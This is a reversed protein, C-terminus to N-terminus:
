KQAMGSYYPNVLSSAPFGSYHILKAEAEGTTHSIHQYKKKVRASQVGRPSFLVKEWKDQSLPTGVLAHLHLIPWSQGKWVPLLLPPCTWPQRKQPVFLCCLHRSITTILTASSGASFLVYEYLGHGARSRSIASTFLHDNFM